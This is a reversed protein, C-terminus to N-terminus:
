RSQIREDIRVVKSLDQPEYDEYTREDKTRGRMEEKGAHKRQLEGSQQPLQLMAGVGRGMAVTRGTTPGIFGSLDEEAVQVQKLSGAPKYQKVTGKPTVVALPALGLRMRLANTAKVSLELCEEKREKVPVNSPATRLPALDLQARLRDTEEVSCELVEEM